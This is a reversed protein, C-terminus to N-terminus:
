GSHCSTVWPKPRFDARESKEFLNGQKDGVEQGIRPAVAEMGAQPDMATRLSTGSLLGYPGRM